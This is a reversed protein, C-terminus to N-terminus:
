TITAVTARAALSAARQSIAAADQEAKLKAPLEIAPEAVFPDITEAQLHRRQNISSPMDKRTFLLIIIVLCALIVAGYIVFLVWSPLTTAASPATNDAARLTVPPVSSVHVIDQTSTSASAAVSTAASFQQVKVSSSSRQVASSSPAISAAPAALTVIPATTPPSSSAMTEAPPRQCRQCDKPVIQQRPAASSVVISPTPTPQTLSHAEICNAAKTLNGYTFHTLLKKLPGACRACGQNIEDELPIVSAVAFPPQHARQIRNLLEVCGARTTATSNHGHRSHVGTHRSMCELRSAAL